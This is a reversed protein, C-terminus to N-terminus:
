NLEVEAFGEEHWSPDGGCPCPRDWKPLYDLIAGCCPCTEGHLLYYALEEVEPVVESPLELATGDDRQMVAAWALELNEQSWEAENGMIDALRLAVEFMDAAPGELNFEDESQSWATLTNWAVNVLDQDSVRDPSYFARKTSTDYYVFGGEPAEEGQPLPWLTKFFLQAPIEYVTDYYRQKIAAM